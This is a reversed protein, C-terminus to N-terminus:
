KKLYKKKEIKTKEEKREGKQIISHYKQPIQILAKESIPMERSLNIALGMSSLEELLAKFENCTTEMEDLRKEKQDISLERKNEAIVFNYLFSGDKNFRLNLFNSQNPIDILFDSEKEFDIVQMDHLVNYNLRELGQVLQTKVFQRENEKIFDEQIIQENKKRLVAFKAQFEEYEYPKITKRQILSIGLALLEGKEPQLQDHVRIHNISGIAKYVESKWDHIKEVKKIDDFLEIYFYEDKLSQSQILKELQAQYEKRRQPDNIESIFANISEIRTKINKRKGELNISKAANACFSGIMNQPAINKAVKDSTKIRVANIDSECKKIDKQLESKKESQIRDFGFQFEAKRVKVNINEISEKAQSFIEPYEDQIYSSLYHLVQLKFATFNDTAHQYHKEYGVFAHYDKQKGAFEVQEKQLLDLFSKLQDCTQKLQCNYNDYLNQNITGTHNISFPALLQNARSQNSKLFDSCDFEINRAKDCVRAQALCDLLSQITSQLRFIEKLKPNFVNVSYGKPGSM